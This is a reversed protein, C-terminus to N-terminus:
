PKASGQLGSVELGVLHLRDIVCRRRCCQVMLGVPACAVVYLNDFTVVGGLRGLDDDNFFPNALVVLSM